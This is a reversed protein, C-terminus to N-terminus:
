KPGALLVPELSGVKCVSVPHWLIVGADRLASSVQIAKVTVLFGHDFSQLWPRLSLMNFKLFSKLSLTRMKKKFRHSLSLVTQLFKAVSHFDLFLQPQLIACMSLFKYRMGVARGYIQEHPENFCIYAFSFATHVSSCITGQSEGIRQQNAAVAM